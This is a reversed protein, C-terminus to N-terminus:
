EVQIGADKVLKRFAEAESRVYASFEEPSRSAVLEIGREGYKRKLEPNALAKALAAHLRAIVERPAVIGNWTVDDFGSAVLEGRALKAKVPNQM